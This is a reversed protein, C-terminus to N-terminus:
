EGLRNRFEAEVLLSTAFGGDIRGGVVLLVKEYDADHFYSLQPLFEDSCNLIRLCGSFIAIGFSCLLLLLPKLNGVRHVYGVM